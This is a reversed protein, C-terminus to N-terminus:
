LNLFGSDAAEETVLINDKQWVFICSPTAWLRGHINLSLSYLLQDMQDM